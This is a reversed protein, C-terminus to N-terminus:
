TAGFSTTKHHCLAVRNRPLHRRQSPTDEDNLDQRGRDICKSHATARDEEAIGATTTETAGATPIRLLAIEATGTAVIEEEMEAGTGTM